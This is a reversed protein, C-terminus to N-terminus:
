TSFIMSHIIQKEITIFVNKLKLCKGWFLILVDFCNFSMISLSANALLSFVCFSELLSFPIMSTLDQTLDALDFIEPSALFVMSFHAFFTFGLAKFSPSLSLSSRHAALVLQSDSKRFHCFDVSQRPPKEEAM